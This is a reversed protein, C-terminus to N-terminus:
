IFANMLYKKVISREMCQEINPFVQFTVVYKILYM